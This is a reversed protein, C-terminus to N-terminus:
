DEDEECVTCNVFNKREGRNYRELNEILEETELVSVDGQDWPFKFTEWKLKNPDEENVNCYTVMCCIADGELRNGDKDLFHLQFGDFTRSTEWEPIDRGEALEVFKVLAEAYKKGLTYFM